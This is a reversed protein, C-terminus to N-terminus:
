KPSSGIPKIPAAETTAGLFESYAAQAPAAQIAYLVAIRSHTAPDVEIEGCFFLNDPDFEARLSTVSQDTQTM